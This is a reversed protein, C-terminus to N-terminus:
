SCGAQVHAQICVHIANINCRIWLKSNSVNGGRYGDIRVLDTNYQHIICCCLVFYAPMVPWEGHLISGIFTCDESLQKQMAIWRFHPWYGPKQHWSRRKLISVTEVLIVTGMKFIVRDHSRRINIYNCYLMKWSFCGGCEKCWSSVLVM